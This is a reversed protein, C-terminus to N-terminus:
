SSMEPKSRSLNSSPRVDEALSVELEEGSRVLRVPIGMSLIQFALEGSGGPGGFSAADLLVVIPKLGRRLLYEAVIMIEQKTSATILVVTSGKVMHKVQTEVVGRLPVDGVARLIALAELIKGLQRGGRDPPILALYSGSSALGVSRGRRLYDRVLSAAISISYEESSPPLEIKVNKQWLDQIRHDIPPRPLAYQTAQDADLFIWVDALPDLEFEKVMLRNRRAASLWHIRNLPDGPAYERVGAANPTVQHTRRRLAEGGPLLGPPNPFSQIEVMMPYVLLSDLAPIRLSVPFIGFIDGSALVTPGLPFVGRQILRTRALYSRGQKSEIMTLVRSGESGPLTSEDNVELWLRPLRSLNYIDFREEFIQGVQARLARASRSVKLGRISLRSWIWSGALLFIWLYSLRYYLDAGTAVGAIMSLALLILFVRQSTNM